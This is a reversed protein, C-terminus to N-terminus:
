DTASSAEDEGLEGEPGANREGRANWWRRAQRFPYWVLGVVTTFMGFGVALLAGIAALGAGPGIYAVLVDQTARAGEAAGADPALVWAALLGAAALGRAICSRVAADQTRTNSSEM